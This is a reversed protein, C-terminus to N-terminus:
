PPSFLLTFEKLIQAKPSQVELVFNLFPERVPQPTTVHIVATQDTVDVSFQLSTLYFERSVGLRDFDEQSALRVRLEERNLNETGIIEISAELPQNLQSRVQIEGLGLAMAMEGCLLMTIVIFGKKLHRSSVNM